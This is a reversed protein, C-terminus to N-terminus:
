IVGKVPAVLAARDRHVSALATDPCGCIRDCRRSDTLTYAGSERDHVIFGRVAISQMAHTSVGLAVHSISIAVCFLIVRDQATLKTTEKAV